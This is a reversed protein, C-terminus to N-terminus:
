LCRARAQGHKYVSQGSASMVDSEAERVDCGPPFPGATSSGTIGQATRNGSSCDPFRGRSDGKRAVAGTRRRSTVAAPTVWIEGRRTPGAIRTPISALCPYLPFCRGAMHEIGPLRGVGTPISSRSGPRTSPLFPPDCCRVPNRSCFFFFISPVTLILDLHFGSHWYPWLSNRPGM